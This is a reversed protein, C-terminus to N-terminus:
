AGLKNLFGGLLTSGGGTLPATLFSGLSGVGNIISQLNQNQQTTQSAGNNIINNAITSVMQQNLPITQAMADRQIGSIDQGTQQQVGGISSGLGTLVDALSSGTNLISNAVNQGTQAQLGAQAGGLSSYLDALSNGMNTLTTAYDGRANGIAGAAQLGIGQQGSLSSLWNNWGQDALGQAITTLEREANGSRLMGSANAARKSQELAQDVSYQYGPAATFASRAAANGSAGNLGLADTLTNSAATGNAYYPQYLGEISGLTGLAQNGYGTVANTANGYATGLSGLADSLSGNLADVAQSGAGSLTDLASGGFTRLTDVAANSGSNISATRNATTNGIVTNLNGLVGGLLKNADKTYKDFSSAM